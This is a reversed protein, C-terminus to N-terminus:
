DVTVRVKQKLYGKDAMCGQIVAQYADNGAAAINLGRVIGVAASGGNDKDTIAEQKRRAKMKALNGQADCLAIASKARPTDFENNEVNVWKEELRTFKKLNPEGCHNKDYGKQSLGKMIQLQVKQDTYYSTRSRTDLMDENLKQFKGCLKSVSTKNFYLEKDKESSTKFWMTSGTMGLNLGGDSSTSICGSLFILNILVIIKKM